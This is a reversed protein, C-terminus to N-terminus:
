GSKTLRKKAGLDEGSLVGQGSEGPRRARPARGGRARRQMGVTTASTGV